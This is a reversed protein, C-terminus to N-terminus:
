SSREGHETKCCTESPRTSNLRSRASSSTTRLGPPGPFIKFTRSHERKSSWSPGSPRRRPDTSTSSAYTAKVSDTKTLVCPTDAWKKVHPLRGKMCFEALLARLERKRARLEESDRHTPNRGELNAHSEDELRDIEKELDDMEAVLSDLSYFVAMNPM